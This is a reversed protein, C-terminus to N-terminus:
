THIHAYKCGWRQNTATATKTQEKGTKVKTDKPKNQLAKLPKSSPLCAGIVRNVERAGGYWIKEKTQQKNTTRVISLVWIHSTNGRKRTVVGM